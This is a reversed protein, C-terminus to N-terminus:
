CQIISSITLLHALHFSSTALFYGHLWSSIKMALNPQLAVAHRCWHRLLTRCRKYLSAPLCTISAHNVLGMDLKSSRAPHHSFPEFLSYFPLSIPSRTCVQLLVGFRCATAFSRCVKPYVVLAKTAKRAKSVRAWSGLITAELYPVRDLLNM